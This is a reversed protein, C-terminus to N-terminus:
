TPSSQLNLTGQALNCRILNACYLKQIGAIFESHGGYSPHRVQVVGAGKSIRRASEAANNGVAVLRSPRLLDILESLVKEGVHREHANHARNSFPLGPEHPHLPFVNWLFIRADINDLMGWIIAATREAVAPGKTPRSVGIGWRAAHANIHIDDTLPLGTRRGGRHGLDRGIWMDDVGSRAAERLMELLAMRRRLPADQLDYVPCRDRYPNFANEFRLSAVSDVFEVALMM